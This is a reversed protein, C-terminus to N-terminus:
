VELIFLVFAKGLGHEIDFCPVLSLMVSALVWLKLVRGLMTSSVAHLFHEHESAIIGFVVSSKVLSHVCTTNNQIKKVHQVILYNFANSIM